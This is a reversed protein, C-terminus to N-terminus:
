LKTAMERQAKDIATARPSGSRMERTVIADFKETRSRPERRPKPRSAATEKGRKSRNFAAKGIREALPPKKPM